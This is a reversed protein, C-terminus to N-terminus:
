DSFYLVAFSESELLANREEICSIQVRKTFERVSNAPLSVSTRSIEVNIPMEIRRIDTVNVALEAAEKPCRALGTGVRVVYVIRQAEGTLRYAFACGFKV